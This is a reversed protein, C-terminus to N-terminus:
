VSAAYNFTVVFKLGKLTFIPSVNWENLFLLSRPFANLTVLSRPCSPWRWISSTLGRQGKCSFIVAYTQFFYDFHTTSTTKLDRNGDDNVAFFFFVIKEKKLNVLWCTSSQLFTKTNTLEGVTTSISCIEFMRNTFVHLM